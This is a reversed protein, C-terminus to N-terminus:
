AHVCEALAVPQSAILTRLEADGARHFARGGTGLRWGVFGAALLEAFAQEVPKRIFVHVVAPLHLRQMAENSGGNDPHCKKAEAIYAARTEELTGSNDIVVDAKAILEM